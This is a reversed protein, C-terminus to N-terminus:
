SPSPYIPNEIKCIVDEFSVVTADTTETPKMTTLHLADQIMPRDESWEDVVTDCGFHKAIEYKNRTKGCAAPGYVIVTKM